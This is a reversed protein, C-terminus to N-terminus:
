KGSSWPVSPVVIYDLDMPELKHAVLNSDENIHAYGAIGIGKGRCDKLVKQSIKGYYTPMNDFGFKVCLQPYKVVDGSLEACVLNLKIKDIKLSPNQKKLADREARFRDLSIADMSEVEYREPHKLKALRKALERTQEKTWHSLPNCKMEIQGHGNYKETIKIADEMKIMKQNYKKANNGKTVKTKLIKSALTGTILGGSNTMDKLKNDHSVIFEIKGKSDPKSPWLDFNTGYFGKKM